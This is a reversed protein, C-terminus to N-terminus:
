LTVVLEHTAAQLLEGARRIADDRDGAVDALSRVRVDPPIMARAEPAVDGAVVARPLSAPAADLVGAVVKGAFTSADLRGEGTVVMAAGGIATQLGAAEAVVDFGSRLTAGIAALGGALGGAAGSGPLERVSVGTREALLDATRELRGTLQAVQAADAGKQPAFIRAADVFPTRVDCAVVLDLGHSSWGLADLAGLGGDTTASGGVGVIARRAGTAAAALLLEGVGVTSAQLPDNGDGVLALGAARAMEVIATGDPLLGWEAEVSAGLPGTVTSRRREGGVAALLADLTGEGGDALPLERADRGAQAVGAAMRAAAEVATLSGRFKDPCCLV